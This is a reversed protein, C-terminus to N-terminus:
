LIRLFVIILGCVFITTFIQKNYRAILLPLYIDFNDTTSNSFKRALLTLPCTMKFAALVIGEFAVISVAIWTLISVHNSIDCYLVYFIVAVMFIWILTHISKVICLKLIHSMQNIPQNTLQNDRYTDPPQNTSQNYRFLLYYILFYYIIINFQSEGRGDM